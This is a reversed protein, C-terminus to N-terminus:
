QDNRMAKARLVEEMTTTGAIEFHGMEDPRV